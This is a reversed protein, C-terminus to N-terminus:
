RSRCTRRLNRLLDLFLDLAADRQAAEGLRLLNGLRDDEQRGVAVVDGTLLDVDVASREHSDVAPVSAFEISSHVTGASLRLHAVFAFRHIDEVRGPM